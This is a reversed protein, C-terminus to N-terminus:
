GTRRRTSKVWLWWCLGVRVWRPAPWQPPSVFGQTDGVSARRARTRIPWFAESIALTHPRPRFFVTSSAATNGADLSLSLSLSLQWLCRFGHM